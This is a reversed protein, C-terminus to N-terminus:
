EYLRKSTNQKNLRIPLVIFYFLTFALSGFIIFASLAWHMETNRTVYSELFGAVIFFPILGIIIKIGSKAGSLFAQKRTYTGPFLFSSGLIYGACGAIIIAGIEFTGHIWIVKFAKDLLNYQYFMTFFCGLMIGNFVLFYSTGFFTFVGLIFATFSVQINNQTIRVFMYFENEEGYIGLPNGLKIREITSDVYYDGLILRVFSEDYIQSVVGLLTALGFVLFSYFLKKHHTAFMEPLERLYFALFRNGEEKKNKYVLLHVRSALNNVYSHTNSQKYNTNAYSLDDTSEIFMETLESPGINKESIVKEYNDWKSANQKLFTIEKM